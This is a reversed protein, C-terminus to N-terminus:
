AVDRLETLVTSWARDASPWAPEWGTAERFSRNSIRLSRSLLEMSGGAMRTLWRPLPRPQRYGAAKALSTVWEGRRMPEDEAVNYIGSPVDLAAVVATAADEQALSTFYAQPDGPLPSWGRRLLDLMERMLRDPGYLAAFRLVVGTGDSQVFREVSEEAHLTSRNYASPAVPATEDLWEDGGDAYMPAFSEQVLRPVGADRAASMVALSGARRIRDNEKWAGRFMMRISSSPIHTALNLVADHGNMRRALEVADFISVAVPCAGASQLVARKQPSRGIATVQHGAKILLPLARSGIAGTAGTVFVRM